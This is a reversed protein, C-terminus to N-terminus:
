KQCKPCWHTGRGALRTKVLTAGCRRCKQGERGYVKLKHQNMGPQGFVDLFDSASTGRNGISETLAAIAGRHLAKLELPSLDGVIRDPRVKARWCSEDVYINGLGAICSQDLLVAKLKSKPHRLVCAAFRADTFEPELPEPGYVSDILEKAVDDTRVLKLYGFKRVDEFFLQRGDSLGFVVHDHRGAIDAKNKILLRGTMKLHVAVTWGNDLEILILKARRRVSKVRAGTVAGVLKKAAVNLRGGFHVDVSKIRKGVTEEALQRRITEVEPLEPM